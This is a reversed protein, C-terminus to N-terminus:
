SGNRAARTSISITQLVRPSRYVGAANAAHLLPFGLRPIPERAQPGLCSRLTGLRFQGAIVPLMRRAGVGNRDPILTSAAPLCGRESRVPSPCCSSGATMQRFFVPAQYSAGGGQQPPKKGILSQVVWQNEYRRRAQARNRRSIGARVGYGVLLGAVFAPLSVELVSLVVGSLLMM